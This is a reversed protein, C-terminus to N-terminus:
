SDRWVTVAFLCQGPDSMAGRHGSPKAPNESRINVSEQSMGALPEVLRNECRSERHLSADVRRKVWSFYFLMSSSNLRDAWDM